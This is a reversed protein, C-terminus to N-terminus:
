EEWGVWSAYATTTASSIAVLATVIKLPVPFSIFAPESALLSFMVSNVSNAGGNGTINDGFRFRGNADLEVILSTIYLTKGAAPTYLTYATNLTATKVDSGLIPTITSGGGSPFTKLPLDPQGHPIVFAVAAMAVLQQAEAYTIAKAEAIRRILVDTDLPSVM